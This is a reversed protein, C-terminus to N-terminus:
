SPTAGYCYWSKYKSQCPHGSSRNETAPGEKNDKTKVVHLNSKNSNEVGTAASTDSSLIQMICLQRDSRYVEPAIHIVDASALKDGVEICKEYVNQNRLELLIAKQLCKDYAAGFNCHQQSRKCKETNLYALTVKYQSSILWQQWLIMADPSATGKLPVWTINQTPPM